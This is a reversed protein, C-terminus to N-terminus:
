KVGGAGASGDGGSRSDESGCLAEDKCQLEGGNRGGEQRGAPDM